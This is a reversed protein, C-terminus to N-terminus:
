RSVVVGMARRARAKGKAKAKAAAKAAAKAKAEDKARAQLKKREDKLMARMREEYERLVRTAEGTELADLGENVVAEALVTTELAARQREHAVDRAEGLKRLKESHALEPIENDAARKLARLHRLREADTQGAPRPMPAGSDLAQLFAAGSGSMEDLKAHVGALQELAEEHHAAGQAMAAEHHAIAQSKLAQLDKDFGDIAKQLERQYCPKLTLGYTRLAAIRQAREDATLPRKSRRSLGSSLEQKVVSAMFRSMEGTEGDGPGTSSASM